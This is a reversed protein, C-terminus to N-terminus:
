KLVARAREAGIRDILQQKFLSAPEVPKDPSEIHGSGM